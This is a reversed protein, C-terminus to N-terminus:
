EEQKALLKVFDIVNASAGITIAKRDGFDVGILLTEAIMIGVGLSSKIDVGDNDEVFNAYVGAGLLRRKMSMNSNFQFQYFLGVNIGKLINFRDVKQLSTDQEHRADFDKNPDSLMYSVGSLGIDLSLSEWFNRKLYGNYTKSQGDLGAVELYFRDGGKFTNLVFESKRSETFTLKKEKLDNGDIDKLKLTLVQPNEHKVLNSNQDIQFMRKNKALILYELGKSSYVETEKFSIYKDPSLWKQFDVKTEDAIQSAIQTNIIVDDETFNSNIKIKGIGDSIDRDLIEVGKQDNVILANPSAKDYKLVYEVNTQFYGQRNTWEPVPYINEIQGSWTRDGHRLEFSISAGAIREPVNVRAVLKSSSPNGAPSIECSVPTGEMTLRYSTLDVSEFDNRTATLIIEGEQGQVLPYLSNRPQITATNQSPEINVIQKDSTKDDGNQIYVKFRSNNVNTPLAISITTELTGNKRIADFGSPKTEVYCPEGDICETFIKANPSTHFSTFRLPVTSTRTYYHISNVPPIIEPSSGEIRVDVEIRNWDGFQDKIVIKRNGLEVESLREQPIELKATLRKDTEIRVNKLAFEQLSIEPEVLFGHGSIVMEANLPSRYDFMIKNEFERNDILVKISSVTPRKTKFRVTLIHDVEGDSKLIQIEYKRIHFESTKQFFVIGSTPIANDHIPSNDGTITIPELHSPEIQGLKLQGGTYNEKLNRKLDIPLFELTLDVDVSIEYSDDAFCPSYVLYVVSLLILRVLFVLNKM